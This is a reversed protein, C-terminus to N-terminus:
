GSRRVKVGSLGAELSRCSIETAPVAPASMNHPLQASPPPHRLLGIIQNLALSVISFLADTPEERYVGLIVPRGGPSVAWRAAKIGALLPLHHLVAVMSVFDYRHSDAQFNADVVSATPWPRVAPAASAATAPDAEIGVV